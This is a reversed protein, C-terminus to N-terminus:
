AAALEAAYGGAIVLRAGGARAELSVAFVFGSARRPDAQLADLLRGLPVAALRPLDPAIALTVAAPKAALALLPAVREVLAPEFAGCEAELLALLGDWLAGWEREAQAVRDLRRALAADAGGRALDLNAGIVHRLNNGAHCLARALDFSM